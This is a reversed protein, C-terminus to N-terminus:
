TWEIVCSGVTMGAGFASLFVLDGPKLRNDELMECLLLPISVSSLNGYHEINVPFKEEPQCLKNRVSDVIRKNAQHLIFYDIQDTSMKLADLALKIEIEVANVAFKFVDQGQMHLFRTERKHTVFPSNGTGVPLNLMAIDANSAFHTYKLSAGKTVVCAAAGDGFLVCTNRDGWDVHSSMMEACIILVNKARDRNLFGAVVELGYIFGACAANIDFAPCKINLRESVCCALSPTQYDGGITSGIILDIDRPHLGAKSIAQETAIVSLDTLTEHTCVHRNKIGTRSFIWEDSTDVFKALDDNSVCKEPIGKGIGIIKLCM